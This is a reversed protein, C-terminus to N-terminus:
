LPGQTGKLSSVTQAKRSCSAAARRLLRSVFFLGDKSRFGPLLRVQDRSRVAGRSCLNAGLAFFKTSNGAQSLWGVLDALTYKGAAPAWEGPAPPAPLAARPWRRATCDGGCRAPSAVQSPAPRSRQQAEAAFLQRDSTRRKAAPRCMAVYRRRAGVRERPQALLAGRCCAQFEQCPQVTLSYRTM